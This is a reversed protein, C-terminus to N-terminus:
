PIFSLPSSFDPLSSVLSRKHCQITKTASVHITVGSPTFALDVMHCGQPFHIM